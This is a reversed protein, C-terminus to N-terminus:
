LKNLEAIDAGAVFAKEGSGTIVVVFIEPNNKISHFVDELENITQGNLANLKDPRNVTVIATHNKIEFLINQYNM